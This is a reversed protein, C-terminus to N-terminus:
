FHSEPATRVRGLGDSYVGYGPAVLYGRPRERPLGGQGAWQDEMELRHASKPAGEVDVADRDTGHADHQAEVHAALRLKEFYVYAGYFVRSTSGGTAGDKDMFDALQKSQIKVPADARAFGARAIDRLFAAKTRGPRALEARIKRRIEDCSDYIEVSADDDGALSIAFLSARALADIEAPTKKRAPADASATSAGADADEEGSEVPPAAADSKDARTSGRPVSSTGPACQASSADKGKKAPPELEGDSAADRERRRKGQPLILGLAWTGARCAGSFFGRAGERRGDPAADGDRVRGRAVPWCGALAHLV